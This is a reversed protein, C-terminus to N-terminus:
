SLNWSPKTIVGTGRGLGPGCEEMLQKVEEAVAFNLRHAVVADHLVLSMDLAVRPLEPSDMTRSLLMGQAADRAIAREAPLLNGIELAAIARRYAAYRHENV